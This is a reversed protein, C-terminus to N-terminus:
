LLEDGRSAASTEGGLTDLLRDAAEIGSGDLATVGTSRGSVTARRVAHPAAAHGVPACRRSALRLSVVRQRIAERALVPRRHAATRPHHAGIGVRDLVDDLGGERAEDLGEWAGVLDLGRPVVQQAADRGCGVVRSAAVTALLAVVDADLAEAKGVAVQDVDVGAIGGLAGELALRHALSGLPERHEGVLFALDEGEAGSAEAVGLDGRADAARLPGNALAYAARAALEGIM